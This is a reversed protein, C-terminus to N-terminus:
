PRPTPTPFSFLPGRNLRHYLFFCMIGYILGFTVAGTLGLFLLSSFISVGRRQDHLITMLAGFIAGAIVLLGIADTAWIPIFGVIFGYAGVCSIFMGAAERSLARSRANRSAQQRSTRKREEQQQLEARVHQGVERGIQQAMELIYGHPGRRLHLSSHCYPCALYETATAPLPLNGGCAPCSLLAVPAAVPATQAQNILSQGCYPCARWEAQVPQRCNSCVLQAM